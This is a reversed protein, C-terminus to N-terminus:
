ETVYTLCLLYYFSVLRCHFQPEMWVKRSFYVQVPPQTETKLLPIYWSVIHPNLQSGFVNQIDNNLYMTTIARM